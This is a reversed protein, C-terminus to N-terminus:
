SRIAAAALCSEILNAFATADLASRGVGLGDMESNLLLEAAGGASVSGGYLIPIRGCRSGGFLEELIAQFHFRMERIYSPAAIVGHVGIAWAPEYLLIIREADEAAVGNMAIRLQRACTERATNFERDMATEGICVLARFGARLAALVKKNIMADTEHFMERRESHGLMVLDIGLEALMATSIEGTYAGSEEWHMNQAGVWFAGGGSEKVAEISTYPPIVFIQINAELKMGRIRQRLVAAYEAAERANKNMKLNTGFLWNQKM